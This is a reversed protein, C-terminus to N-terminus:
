FNNLVFRVIAQAVAAVAVGVLAYIIQNRTNAIKGPDGQSLTMKIGAIILIVVAIFGVVLSLINIARTLIGDEGYIPNSDEGVSGADRCVAPVNGETIINGDADTACVEDFLNVQAAVPSAVLVVPLFMM